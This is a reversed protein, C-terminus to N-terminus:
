LEEEISELDEEFELEGMENLEKEIEELSMDAPDKKEERKEGPPVIGQGTEKLKQITATCGTLILSLLAVSLIKKLKM